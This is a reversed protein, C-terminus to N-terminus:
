EKWDFTIVEIGERNSLIQEAWGIFGKRTEPDFKDVQEKPCQALEYPTVDEGFIFRTLAEYKGKCVMHNLLSISPDISAMLLDPRAKFDVFAIRSIAEKPIPGLHGVTGLNDISDEWYGRWTDTHAFTRFYKTRKLMDGEPVGPIKSRRSGQELFDEDPILLDHDLRELPIEIIAGRVTDLDDVEIPIQAFYLAYIDSLYVTDRRSDVTHQWNGGREDNRPLLGEEIIKKAITESTGHYLQM